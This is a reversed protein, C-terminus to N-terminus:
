LFIGGSAEIRQGNIWRNDNALLSGVVGGIDDPLGTRGLATQAAVYANFQPNDRLGGGDFDTEIPGPAVTNVTIRRSGLEKALYRTLVEIAGKMAAYASHGEGVFRTLGTSMNIIGGGDAILPELTQILFFVGKFQVNMLNDFEKEDTESFAITHAFGANNVLYDFHDRGWTEQLAGRLDDAFTDFTTVDGVDLRFAVAKRGLKRIEAVVAEAETENSHYTVILDTGKRALALATNRGLGRSSGTVLAIKEISSMVHM